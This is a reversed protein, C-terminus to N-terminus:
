KIKDLAKRDKSHSKKYDSLTMGTIKKFQRSLHAPSSYNMAFAIETFNSEGYTILEKVKEIKQLIIFKEITMKEIDSFRKSLYSYEYAMKEALYDSLNIRLDNNNHILEIILTKIQETLRVNQDKILEFGVEKLQMDLRDLSFEGDEVVAEGLRIDVIRIGM